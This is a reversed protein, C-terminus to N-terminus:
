RNARRLPWADSCWIAWVVLLPQFLLRIFRALDSDLGFASTQTVFQSINGPFIAVFFLVLALGVQRRYRTLFALALGLSIEVVGSVYVILEVGPLFPPVQATFADTNTFHNVGAFVMFGALLLRALTKAM